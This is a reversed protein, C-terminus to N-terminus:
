QRRFVLACDGSVPDAQGEVWEFVKVFFPYAADLDKFQVDFLNDNALPRSWELHWEGSSWGGAALLPDTAGQPITEAIVHALKGSGDSFATHCAVLCALDRAGPWPEQQDFHLVFRNRINGGCYAPHDEKWLAFFYVAGDVHLSRLKVELVQGQSPADRTLPIRAVPAVDWVPDTEGDVIPARDVQQSIVQNEALGCAGIYVEGQLANLVWAALFVVSVYVALRRVPLDLQRIM